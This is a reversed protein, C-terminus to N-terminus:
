FSNLVLDEQRNLKCAGAMNCLCILCSARLREMTIRKRKPADEIDEFTVTTGSNGAAPRSGRTSHVGQWMSGLEAARNILRIQCFEHAVHGCFFYLTKPRNPFQIYTETGWVTDRIVALMQPTINPNCHTAIYLSDCIACVNSCSIVKGSDRGMDYSSRGFAANKCDGSGMSEQAPMGEIRCPQRREDADGAAIDNAVIASQSKIRGVCETKPVLDDSSQGGTGHGERMAGNPVCKKGPYFVMGKKAVDLMQTTYHGMSITQVADLVYIVYAKYKLFQLYLGTVLDEAMGKGSTREWLERLMRQMVVWSTSEDWMLHILALLRSYVTGVSQGKPEKGGKTMFDFRLALMICDYVTYWPESAFYRLYAEALYLEKQVVAEYNGGDDPVPAVARAIRVESLIRLLTGVGIYNKAVSNAIGKVLAIIESPELLCTLRFYLPIYQNTLGDNAYLGSLYGYLFEPEPSLTTVVNIIYEPTKSKEVLLQIAAPPDIRCLQLAASTVYEEADPYLECVLKALDLSSICQVHAMLRFAQRIQDTKALLVGMAIAAARAKPGHNMLMFSELNDNSVVSVRQLLEFVTYGESEHPVSGDRLKLLEIDVKNTEELIGDWHSGSGHLEKKETCGYDVLADVLSGNPTRGMYNLAKRAVHVDNESNSPTSAMANEKYDCMLFPVRDVFFDMKSTVLNLSANHRGNSRRWGCTSRMLWESGNSRGAQTANCICHGEEGSGNCTGAAVSKTDSALANICQKLMKVMARVQEVTLNATLALRLLVFPMDPGVVSSVESRILDYVARYEDTVGSMAPPLIHGLLINLRKHNAFQGVLERIHHARKHDDSMQACYRIYSLTLHATKEVDLSKASLFCELGNRAVDHVYAGCEAGSASRSSMQMVELLAEDHARHRCLQRIHQMPTAGKITVLLGRVVICLSEFRDPDSFCHLIDGQMTGLNVDALGAPCSGGCVLARISKDAYKRNPHDALHLCHEVNNDDHCCFNNMVFQQARCIELKQETIRCTLQLFRRQSLGRRGDGVRLCQMYSENLYVDNYCPDFANFAFVATHDSGVGYSDPSASQRSGDQARVIRFTSGNEEQKGNHMGSRMSPGDSEYIVSFSGKYRHRMIAVIRCTDPAKLSYSVTGRLPVNRWIRKEKVTVYQSFGYGDIRIASNSVDLLDIRRTTVSKRGFGGKCPFSPIIDVVQLSNRSGVLLVRQSLWCMVVGLPERNKLNLMASRISINHTKIASGLKYKTRGTSTAYDFDSSTDDSSPTVIDPMDAERTDSSPSNRRSRTARRGNASWSVDCHEEDYAYGRPGDSLICHYPVSSPSEVDDGSYVNFASQTTWYECRRMAKNVDSATGDRASPTKICTEEDYQALRLEYSHQPSKQLMTESQAHSSSQSGSSRTPTDSKCLDEEASRSVYRDLRANNWGNRRVVRESEADSHYTPSADFEEANDMPEAEQYDVDSEDSTVYHDDVDGADELIGRYEDAIIKEAEIDLRPSHPLFAVAACESLLVVHAGDDDALALMDRYWVMPIGRRTRRSRHILTCAREPGETGIEDLRLLYTGGSQVSFIVASESYELKGLHRHRKEQRRMLLRRLDYTARRKNATTTLAEAVAFCRADSPLSSNRGLHSGDQISKNTERRLRQPTRRELSNQRSRLHLTPHGDAHRRPVRHRLLFQPHLVLATVEQGTRIKYVVNSAAVNTVCVLHVYIYGLSTACVVYVVDRLFKAPCLRVKVEVIAGHYSCIRERRNGYILILDGYQTGTVIVDGHAAVASTFPDLDTISDYQVFPGSYEMASRKSM